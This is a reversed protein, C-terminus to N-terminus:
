RAAYFSTSNIVQQLALVGAENLTVNMEGGDPMHMVVEDGETFTLLKHSEGDADVSWTKEAKDFNLEVVNEVGEKQITYGDERTEVTYLGDKGEVTKTTGVDAVPNEGTWFEISNIVLVDAMVAIGYVPVISIAIFIVENVWKSSVSRNWDLIKHTLAFSGICSSFMISSALAAAAVVTLSRRKM